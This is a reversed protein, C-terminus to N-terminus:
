ETLILAGKATVAVTVEEHSSLSGDRTIVTWGDDATDVAHEGATLMPEIAIVAGEPLEIGQGPKGYNPVPPFEHVAYGVGHGVLDRVVSFGAKKAAEEVAAGIDGTRAGAKVAAVGAHLAKRAAEILKEANEGVKGVPVTTATDTYLGKYVGGIDLGVIDGEKFPIESPLGHVVANNASVCLAAPFPDGHDGGYGKFAPKMGAKKLLAEAKENLYEGTTGPRCLSAVERLVARLLRGGELLAKIEEPKKISVNGNRAM